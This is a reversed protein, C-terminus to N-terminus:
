GTPHKEPMAVGIKAIAARVERGVMEHTEMADRQNKIKELKLKERTHTMRFQNAALETTNMRDMLQEKPAIGKRAKIADVGLGGYLGGIDPMTFFASCKIRFAQMEPLELFPKSNV